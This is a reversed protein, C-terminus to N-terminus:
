EGSGLALLLALWSVPAVPCLFGTLQSSKPGTNKWINPPKKQTIPKSDISPSSLSDRSAPGFRENRM